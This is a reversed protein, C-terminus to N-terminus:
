FEHAPAMRSGAAFKQEPIGGAETSLKHIQFIWFNMKTSSFQMGRRRNEVMAAYAAIKWHSVSAIPSTVLIWAHRHALPAFLLSEV